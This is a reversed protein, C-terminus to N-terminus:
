ISDMLRREVLKSIAAPSMKTADVGLGQATPTHVPNAPPSTANARLKSTEEITSLTKRVGIRIASKTPVYMLSSVKLIDVSRKKIIIRGITKTAQTFDLTFLFKTCKLGTNKETEDIAAIIMPAITPAVMEGNSERWSATDKRGINISTVM